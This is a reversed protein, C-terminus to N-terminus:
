IWIARWCIGAGCVYDQICCSWIELNFQLVVHSIPPIRIEAILACISDVRQIGIWKWNNLAWIWTERTQSSISITWRCGREGERVVRHILFWYGWNGCCEGVWLSRSTRDSGTRNFVWPTTLCIWSAVERNVVCVVEHQHCITIDVSSVGVVDANLAGVPNLCDLIVVKFENLLCVRAQCRKNHWAWDLCGDLKVVVSDVVLLPALVRVIHECIVLTRFAIDGRALNHYFVAAWSFRWAIV